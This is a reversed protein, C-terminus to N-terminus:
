YWARFDFVEHDASVRLILQSLEGSASVEDECTLM